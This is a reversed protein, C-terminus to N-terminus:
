TTSHNGCRLQFRARFRGAGFLFGCFVIWIMALWDGFHGGAGAGSLIEGRVPEIVNAIELLKRAVVEPPSKL